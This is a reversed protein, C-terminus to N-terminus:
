KKIYGVINMKSPKDKRSTVQCSRYNAESVKIKGSDYVKEVYAVHGFPYSIDMVAVRGKKPKSSNMMNKKDWIYTLGRPLWPSKCQRVWFVCNCWGTSSSCNSMIQNNLSKEFLSKKTSNEDSEALSYIGIKEGEEIIAYQVRRGQEITEFGVGREDKDTTFNNLVVSYKDANLKNLLGDKTWSEIDQYNNPLEVHLSKYNLSNNKEVAQSKTSTVGTLFLVGALFVMIHLSAKRM